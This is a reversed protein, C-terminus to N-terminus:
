PAPDVPRDNGIVQVVGRWMRIILGSDSPDNSTATLTNRMITAMSLAVLLLLIYEFVLQGSQKKKAKLDKVATMSKAECYKSLYFLERQGLDTSERNNLPSNCSLMM